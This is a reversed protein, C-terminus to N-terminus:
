YSDHSNGKVNQNIYAIVDFRTVRVLDLENTGRKIVANIVGVGGPSRGFEASYGLTNIQFDQYFEFPM